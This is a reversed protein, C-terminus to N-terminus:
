PADSLDPEKPSPVYPLRKPPPPTLAVTPERDYLSNKPDRQDCALTVGLALSVPRVGTSLERIELASSALVTPRCNHQFRTM